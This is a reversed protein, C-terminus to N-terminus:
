QWINAEKILKILKENLYANDISIQNNGIVIGVGATLISQEGGLSSTVYYIGDQLKIYGLLGKSGPKLKDDAM